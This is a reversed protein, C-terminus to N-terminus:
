KKVEREKRRKELDEAPVPQVKNDHAKGISYYRSCLLNNGETPKGCVICNM